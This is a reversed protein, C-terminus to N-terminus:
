RALWAAVSESIGLQLLDDLWLWQGSPNVELFVYDDEPTRILDVAAFTLNLIAILRLIRQAVAEPLEVARHPLHSDATMRWDISAAPDSQSDIEAAFLQEGVVTARVDCRKRVLQQYISPSWRASDIQDLHEDLVQSTFIAHQEEGYDVFGSRVAKVVMSGFERYAERIAIPDNSILTRPVLMGVSTAVELQYPKHEAQWVASPLSMWRCRRGLISGMLAARAEKVCFDYVGHDMGAPVPATRVRRYWVSTPPPLWDETGDSKRITLWNQAEQTAPDYSIQREFPFDETNLRTFHVGRTALRLVVDDTAIDAKTSVILVHHSLDAM